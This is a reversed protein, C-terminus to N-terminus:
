TVDHEDVSSVSLRRVIDVSESDPSHACSSRQSPGHSFSDRHSAMNSPRQPYKVAPQFASSRRRGSSTTVPDIFGSQQVKARRKAIQVRLHRMSPWVTRIVLWIHVVVFVALSAYFCVTDISQATKFRDEDKGALDGVVAAETVQMALWRARRETRTSTGHAHISYPCTTGGRRSAPRLFSFPLRTNKVDRGVEGVKPPRTSHPPGATHTRRNSYSIISPPSPHVFSKGAPKSGTNSPSPSPHKPGVTTRTIYRITAVKRPNAHPEADQQEHRCPIIPLLCVIAVAM